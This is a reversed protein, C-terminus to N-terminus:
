SLAILATLGFFYLRGLIVYAACIVLAMTFKYTEDRSSMGLYYGRSIGIAGVSLIIYLIAESVVSGSSTSGIFHSIARLIFYYTPVALLLWLGSITILRNNQNKILNEMNDKVNVIM